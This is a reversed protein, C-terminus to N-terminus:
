CSVVVGAVSYFGSLQEEKWDLLEKAMPVCM